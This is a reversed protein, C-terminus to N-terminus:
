AQAATPIAQTTQPPAGQPAATSARPQNALATATAQLSAFQAREATATAGLSFVALATSTTDQSSIGSTGCGALVSVLCLVSLLRTTSCMSKEEVGTTESNYICYSHVWRQWNGM